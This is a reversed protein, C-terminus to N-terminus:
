PRATLPMRHRNDHWAAPPPRHSCSTQLSLMCDPERAGAKQQEGTQLSLICPQYNTQCSCQPKSSSMQSWSGAKCPQSQVAPKTSKQNLPGRCQQWHPYSNGHQFGCDAESLKKSIHALNDDAHRTCCALHKMLKSCNSCHM